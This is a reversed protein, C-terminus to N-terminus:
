LSGLNNSNIESIIQAPTTGTVVPKPISSYGANTMIIGGGKCNTLTLTGSGMKIVVIGKITVNNLTLNNSSTLNFFCSDFTYNIFEQNTIGANLWANYIRIDNTHSTGSNVLSIFAQGGQCVIDVYDQLWTADAPTIQLQEEATIFIKCRNTSSPSNGGASFSNACLPLTTESYTDGARQPLYYITNPSMPITSTNSFTADLLEKDVLQRPSSYTRGATTLPMNSASYTKVSTVTQDGSLSQINSTTLDNKLLIGDVTVGTDSTVEAITDTAVGNSFSKLGAVTQSGSKAVIGSVDLSDKILVGDITVGSGSTRESIANTSIGTTFTLLNAVVQGSGDVLVATSEGVIVWSIKTLESSGSFVKYSGSAVNTFEYVGDGIHTGNYVAGGGSSLRLNISSVTEDTNVVGAVAQGIPIRITQNTM